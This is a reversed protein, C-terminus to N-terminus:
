PHLDWDSLSKEKIVNNQTLKVFTEIIEDLTHTPIHAKPAITPKDCIICKFQRQVM